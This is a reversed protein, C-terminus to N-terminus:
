ETASANAVLCKGANPPCTQSLKQVRLSATIQVKRWRRGILDYRPSPPPLSNSSIRLSTLNNHSTPDPLNQRINQTGFYSFERYNEYDPLRGSISFKLWSQLFTRSSIWSSKGLSTVLFFLIILPPFSTFGKMNIVGVFQWFFIWWCGMFNMAFFIIEM